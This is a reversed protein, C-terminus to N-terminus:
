IDFRNLSYYTHGIEILEKVSKTMIGKGNYEYGLWYGIHGIGNIRDIQNFVVVGAVKDQYFITMHLAKGQQFRLLQSEIFEKTDSPNQVNDLWPLWQ